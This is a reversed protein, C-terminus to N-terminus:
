LARWATGTYIVEATDGANLVINLGASDLTLTGTSTSRNEVFFFKDTDPTGPLDVNLNGGTTNELWQLSVDANTLTKLAVINEENSSWRSNLTTLDVPPGGAAASSTSVAFLGIYDISLAGLSAKYELTLVDGAELYCVTKTVENQLINVEYVRIEEQLYKETANIAVRYELEPDYLTDATVDIDAGIIYWGADVITLDATGATLGVNEEVTTLDAVAQWMGDVVATIASPAAIRAGTDVFAGGSGGREAPTGVTQLIVYLDDKNVDRNVDTGNLFFTM